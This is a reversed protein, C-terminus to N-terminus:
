PLATGGVGGSGGTSWSFTQEGRRSSGCTTGCSLAWLAAQHARAYIDDQTVQRSLEQNWQIAEALTGSRNPVRDRTLAKDLHIHGEVLGPLVIRGEVDLVRTGMEKLQPGIAVIHGNTIAIDVLMDIPTIRANQILFDHM